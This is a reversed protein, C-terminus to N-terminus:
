RAQLNGVVIQKEATVDYGGESEAQISMTYEGAEIDSEAVLTFLAATGPTFTYGGIEIDEANATIDEASLGEVDFTIVPPPDLANPYGALVDGQDLLKKFGIAGYPDNGPSSIELPRLVTVPM